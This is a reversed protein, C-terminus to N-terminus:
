SILRWVPNNGYDYPIYALSPIPNTIILNARKGPQITGMDGALEM